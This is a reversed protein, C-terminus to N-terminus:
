SPSLRQRHSIRYKSKPSGLGRHRKTNASIPGHVFGIEMWGEEQRVCLPQIAAVLDELPKMIRTHHGGERDSGFEVRGEM